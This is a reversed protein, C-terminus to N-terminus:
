QLALDLLGGLSLSAITWNPSSTDTGAPSRTSPTTAPPPSTVMSPVTVPLTTANPPSTSTRPVTWFLMTANPPSTRRACVATTPLVIDGCSLDMTRM